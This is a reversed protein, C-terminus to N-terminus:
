AHAPLPVFRCEYQKYALAPVISSVYIQASEVLAHMSPHLVIGFRSAAVRHAQAWPM